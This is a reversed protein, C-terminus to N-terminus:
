QAQPGLAAVIEAWRIPALRSAVGAITAAADMDRAGDAWADALADRQQEATKIISPGAEPFREDGRKRYRWVLGTVANRSMGVLEAIAGMTLGDRIKDAITGILEESLRPAGM